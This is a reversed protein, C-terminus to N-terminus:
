PLCSWNPHWWVRVQGDARDVIGGRTFTPLRDLEQKDFPNRPLGEGANAPAKSYDPPNNIVVYGGLLGGVLLFLFGFLFPYRVTLPDLGLQGLVGKGTVVEM